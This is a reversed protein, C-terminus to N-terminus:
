RSPREQEYDVPTDLDKLVSDSEVVLYDIRDVHRNLVDRLTQPPELALVEDWLSRDIVWPHGRRMQYSPAVLPACRELYAGQLARVVDIRIQPQDGLAVLAAQANDPLNSLGVQLSLIMQDEFYRPNFVTRAPLGMLAQEVQQRAGGTVVLVDEVGAEVLVGVVQGIVTTGGWPLIM